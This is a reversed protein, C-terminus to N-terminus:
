GLGEVLYLNHLIQRYTVAYGQGDPTVVTYYSTTGAPDPPTLEHLLTQQGSALDVRHIRVPLTERASRVLIAQGDSSFRLPRM